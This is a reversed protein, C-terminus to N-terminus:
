ISARSGNGRKPVRSSCTEEDDIPSHGLLSLRAGVLVLRQPNGHRRFRQWPHRLAGPLPLVPFDSVRERTM